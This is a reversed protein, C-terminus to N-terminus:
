ITLHKMIARVSYTGKIPKQEWIPNELHWRGNDESWMPGRFRNAVEWFEGEKIGIMRCFSRIYDKGCGGDLEKVLFIAEERTIEGDRIDYCAQDTAFGFGFKIYKLLQNVERFSHDLASFRRYLGKAYPDMDEPHISLGHKLSFRANHVQGWDRVYNSLWVGRIGKKRVSQMNADYMFLEKADADDKYADVINQRVTNTTWIQTADGEATKMDGVGLTQGPNEGNVILPIDFKDAIIFVSSHLCYESARNPNGIAYFDKKFLKRLLQENAKLTITDFGLSKINELNKRGLETTKCPESCVLLPRLKMEDRMYMAQFTSDKGGSVGIVCDYPAHYERAWHCIEVLEQTRKQWDIHKKEDEWLCAGCVGQENFYIGPRSSPQVCRTCYRM